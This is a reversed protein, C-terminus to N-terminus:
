RHFFRLVSEFMKIVVAVMIVYTWAPSNGFFYICVGTVALTMFIVNLINRIVFFSDRERPQRPSRGQRREEMNNPTDQKMITKRSWEYGHGSVKTNSKEREITGFM